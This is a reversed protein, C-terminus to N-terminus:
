CRHKAHRRLSVTCASSATAASSGWSRGTNALEFPSSIRSETVGGAITAGRDDLFEVEFVPPENSVLLITGTAGAELRYTPIARRLRVIDYENLTM